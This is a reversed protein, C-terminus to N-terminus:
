PCKALHLACKADANEPDILLARRFSEAAHSNDGLEQWLQGFQILRVLGPNADANETEQLARAAGARNGTEALSKAWALGLQPDQLAQSAIPTITQVARTFNRTEAYAMGLVARAHADSPAEAVVKSLLPIAEAPKGAFFVALGLNRQLGPVRSDWRAAERYHKLAPDYKNQLAEATALDNLSSALVARLQEETGGTQKKPKESKTSQSSRLSLPSETEAIPIDTKDVAAEQPDKAKMAAASAQQEELQLQQGEKLVKEGEEKRGSSVLIRGLVFYAQRVSLHDKPNGSENLSVAKRLYREASQNAHRDRANLGLYMWTEPLSPNLETATHLYRDSLEFDRGMRAFIGLLYNALFHHPNLKLEEQLQSEIEPTPLWDNAQLLTRGWFYHAEPTRLEIRLASQFEAIAQEPLHQTMYARGVLVRSWGSDGIMALMKKFTDAAQDKEGLGLQAMGLAYLPEAEAKIDISRQMASAAGAYEKNRLLAEGKITWALADQPNMETAITAQEVADSTKKAYLDAIALEVRSEATDEFELSEGCLKAAQDYLSSDLRIKALQVLGLAIVRRTAQGVAVPDGAKRAEMAAELRSTLNNASSNQSKQDIEQGFTPIAPLCCLSIFSVLILQSKLIVRDV